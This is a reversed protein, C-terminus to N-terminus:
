SATKAHSNFREKLQTILHDLCSVTLAHRYYTEPVDAEINSRLTQRGCRRPISPEETEEAEAINSAETFWM